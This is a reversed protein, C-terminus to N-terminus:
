CYEGRRIYHKHIQASCDVGYFNSTYENIEQTCDEGCYEVAEAIARKKNTFVDTIGDNSTQLIYVNQM